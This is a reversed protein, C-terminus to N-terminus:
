RRQQLNFAKFFQSPTLIRVQRYHRIAMLYKDGSIVAKAKGSVACELFKNDSPDRKIVHVRIGPKIIQVFPLLQEEILGKIEGESLQFKPYALVKLYEELIERSLLVTIAGKQWLSVLESVTSTFLLATALVNTDLVVRMLPGQGM